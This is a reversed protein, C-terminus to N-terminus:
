RNRTKSDALTVIDPHLKGYSRLYHADYKSPLTSTPKQASPTAADQNQGTGLKVIDPHKLAYSALEEETIPSTSAALDSALTLMAKEASIGEITMIAVVDHILDKGAETYGTRLTGAADNELRFFSNNIYTTKDVGDIAEPLKEKLFMKAIGTAQAMKFPSPAPYQESLQTIIDEEHAVIPSQTHAASADLVHITVSPSDSTFQIYNLYTKSM